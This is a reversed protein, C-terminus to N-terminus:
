PRKLKKETLSKFIASSVPSMLLIVQYYDGAPNVKIMAGVLRCQYNQM